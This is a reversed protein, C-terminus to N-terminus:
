KEATAAFDLESWNPGTVDFSREEIGIPEGFEKAGGNGNHFAESFSGCPKLQMFASEPNM